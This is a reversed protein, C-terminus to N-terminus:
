RTILMEEKKSIFKIIIENPVCIIPLRDSWGQQVCYQHTCSNESMRVKNNAVEVIIGEDIEITQTELLSYRGVIQNHYIIEFKQTSLQSEIKILMLSSVLLLFVILMFDAFTFLKLFKKM